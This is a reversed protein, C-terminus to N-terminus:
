WNITLDGKYSNICCYEAYKTCELQMIYENDLSSCPALGPLCQRLWVEAMEQLDFDYLVQKMNAAPPLHIYEEATGRAVSNRMSNVTNVIAMQESMSPTHVTYQKDCLQSYTKHPFLCLTHDGYCPPVSCWKNVLKAPEIIFFDKPVPFKPSNDDIVNKLRSFYVLFIESVKKKRGLEGYIVPLQWCPYKEPVYWVKDKNVSGESLKKYKLVGAAPELNFFEPLYKLSKNDFKQSNEYAVSSNTVEQNEDPKATIINEENHGLDERLQKFGSTSSGEDYIYDYDGFIDIVRFTSNPISQQRLIKSNDIKHSINKVIVSTKTSYETVGKTYHKKHTKKTAVYIEFFGDNEDDSDFDSSQITVNNILPEESYYKKIDETNNDINEGYEEIEGSYYDPPIAICQICSLFLSAFCLLMKLLDRRSQNSVMHNLHDRKVFVCVFSLIFVEEIKLKLWFILM